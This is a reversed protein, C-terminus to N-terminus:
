AVVRVALVVEVVTGEVHIEEVMGEALIATVNGQAEAEVLIERWVM